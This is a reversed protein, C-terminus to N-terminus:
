ATGVPGHCWGLYYLELGQPQNNHQIFCVDGDTKAIAQLYKAGAMAGDLYKRDRNEEYVRALFYAIGATGHSFNPMQRPFKPDMSWKLGGHEPIGVEILRDAARRALAAANADGLQKGAHLLFLGTGANGGIIDTVDSWQVGAGTAVARAELTSVVFKVAERYRPDGTARHVEGLTFGIGAIGTYLGPQKESALKAVLDDAGARADNLYEARGTAHHLEVLFLVVGPSGTYLTTGTTTPDTPDAPWTVGATTKVASARVWKATDVAADLYVRDAPAMAAAAAVALAAIAACFATLRIWTM